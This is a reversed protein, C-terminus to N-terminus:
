RELDFYDTASFVYDQYIKQERGKPNNIDFDKGFTSRGKRIADRYFDEYERRKNKGSSKISDGWRSLVDDKKKSLREVDMKAAKESDFLDAIEQGLTKLGEVARGILRQLAGGEDYTMQYIKETGTQAEISKRKRKIWETASYPERGELNENLFSQFDKINNM